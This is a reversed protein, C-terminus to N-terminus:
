GGLYAEVVQPNARLSEADGEALLRGNAMVLIPDCRAFVTELDHEILVFTRGQERRLTDLKELIQRALTPNVGALPEDLLVVKPDAMLTRALELLKKQGGSLAGAYADALDELQFFRLTDRVRPELSAEQQQVRPRALLPAWAAEGRQRPAALRLNDAVSMRAIPRTIQFTRGLGLRARVHPPAHTIDRGELLVRGSTPRQNGALVNFFTTKGAGNPGIIGTLTGPRVRVGMGEVARLGGFNVHIDHAELIAPADASM